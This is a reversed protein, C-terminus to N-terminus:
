CVNHAETLPSLCLARMDPQIVTMYNTNTSYERSVNNETANVCILVCSLM